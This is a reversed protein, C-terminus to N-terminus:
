GDDNDPDLRRLIADDKGETLLASEGDQHDSPTLCGPCVTEGEDTQWNGYAASDSDVVRGCRGCREINPM